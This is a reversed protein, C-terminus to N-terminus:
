ANDIKEGKSIIYILRVILQELVIQPQAAFTKLKKDCNLLEEFCFQLKKTSLKKVYRQCKELVFQKGGYAFDASVATLPKGLQAGAVLRYADVFNASITHLIIMPELRMDFLESLLTLAAATNCSFIQGTLNFVSAEVSKICVLDIIQNTIPDKGAFACLKELECLLINIDQSCNEILYAASGSQLVSGRKKAADTLIHILDTKTRHDIRVAMGGGKETAEILKKFRDSKKEDFNLTDCLFVFVTTDNPESLLILLKQFDKSDADEFDYDCLLVCKKEAMIPFQEKANYVEQLNCEGEFRNFNLDDAKSTTKNIIKDTYFHKLYSDNGFILYSNLINGNNINQKLLQETAIPM